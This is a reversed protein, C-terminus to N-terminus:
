LVICFVEDRLGKSKKWTAMTMWQWQQFAWRWHSYLELSRICWGIDIPEARATPSEHWGNWRFFILIEWSTHSVECHTAADVNYLTLRWRSKRFHNTNEWLLPLECIKSPKSIVHIEKIANSWKATGSVTPNAHVEWPPRCWRPHRATFNHCAPFYTHKHMNFVTSAHRHMELLFGGYEISHYPNLSHFIKLFPWVLALPAMAMIWLTDDLKEKHTWSLTRHFSSKAFDSFSSLILTSTKTHLYGYWMVQLKSHKTANTELQLAAGWAITAKTNSPQSIIIRIIPKPLGNWFSRRGFTM